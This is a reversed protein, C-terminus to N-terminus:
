EGLEALVAAVTARDLEYGRIPASIYSTARWASVQEYVFRCGHREAATRRKAVIDGPLWRTGHLFQFTRGEPRGGVGITGQSTLAVHSGSSLYLKNM